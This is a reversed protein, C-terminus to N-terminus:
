SEESKGKGKKAKDKKEPEKKEAAEEAAAKEAAQKEAAAKEAAEKEAAAKEAAEREAAKITEADVGEPVVVVSVTATLDNAFKLKVEATGVNKIHEDLAIDEDAVEFGQDRLNQAIASPSVSGFLIGQENAKAAVVAEAGQVAEAVKQLQEAELKRQEAREAKDKAISRLNADTAPKGLGQPLLYNRAYGNNVDVVDGLWGLGRIDECLLIRM